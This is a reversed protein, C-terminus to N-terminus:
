SESHDGSELLRQFRRHNHLPQWLPDMKFFAPSMLGSSKQLEELLKIADEYQEFIVLVEALNLTLFLADFADSSPPLLELARTANELSRQKIHLGAWALGLSSLFQPDDSRQMIKRELIVRASDAYVRELLENHKLRNTQSLFLLYAVTDSAPTVNLGTYDSDPYLFRLLWYYFKSQTLDTVASANEFVRRAAKVDGNHIIPLWTRFVQIFADDPALTAAQEAYKESEVFQGMMAHTLAVDLAKLHSRPDLELAKSFEIVAKEIDGQRRHVAAVANILDSNGPDLRLGQEFQELAQIFNRDCHYYCYGLAEYGAPLDPRLQQSRNAAAFANKCRQESRDYYEWFLSAESRALMAYAASFTSDIEVAKRYFNAAIEIDNRNWGRYFYVNGRLYYDYAALSTTPSIPPSATSDSDMALNLAVVVALAVEQQLDFVNKLNRDYSETWVNVDDAVRVLKANIRLRNGSEKEWYITGQLLYGAGLEEGIQRTRKKTNKYLMSSERNIVELRRNRALHVTIADTIGDSFYEDAPLGLNQFPLVALKMYTPSPPCSKVFFGVSAASLLLLLFAASIMKRRRTQWRQYFSFAGETRDIVIKKLDECVEDANQYRKQPDKELLRNVIEELGTPLGKVLSSLPPPSENIISYTAAAIYDGAFPRQGSVMEYLVVGFSFLDARQDFERGQLQEPSMYSPTGPTVHMQTETALGLAKAIGFDLIKVQRNDDIMINGPKIDRHVLGKKHAVQLGDCIQIAVAIADAIDLQKDAIADALSKGELYEMSFFPRGQYEGVDHITVVRPHNLAAAMQAERVFRSRATPDNLFQEGLFKLAVKRHLKTDDALYVEGMGGAGIKSLIRYHSFEREFPILESTENADENM